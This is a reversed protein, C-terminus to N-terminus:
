HKKKGSRFVFLVIGGVLVFLAFVTSVFGYVAPINEKIINMPTALIFILAIYAVLAIRWRKRYEEFESRKREERELREQELEVRRLEAEDHNHLHVTVSGDDIAIQTGCYTCFCRKADTPVSLQGGCKPCTLPVLTVPVAVGGEFLM